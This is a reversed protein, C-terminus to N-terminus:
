SLKHVKIVRVEYYLTEGALKNFSLGYQSLEEELYPFFMKSLNYIRTQNIVRDISITRNWEDKHVTGNEDTYSVIIKDETLNIIKYINQDYPNLPNSTTTNIKPNQIFTIKTENWIVSTANPWAEFLTLNETKTPTTSFWIRTENVKIVTTANEWFPIFTFNMGPSVEWRLIIHDKTINIVRFEQKFQGFTFMSTNFTTNVTIPMGYAKEPPIPGIIKKGGEKMGILGEKLGDIVTRYEEYGEPPITKNKPNIYVKLPEYSKNKDYIGEQKAITENNTDFVTNNSAYRGVYEIEICDGIEVIKEEEYIYRYYLYTTVGTIIVILLILSIVFSKEFKM